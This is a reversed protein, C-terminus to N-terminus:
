TGPSPPARGPGAEVGPAPDRDEVDLPRLAAVRRVREVLRQDLEEVAELVDDELDVCAGLRRERGRRRHPELAPVDM